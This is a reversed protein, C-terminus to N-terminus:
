DGYMSNLDDQSAPGFIHRAGYRVSQDGKLKNARGAVGEAPTCSLMIMIAKLSLM